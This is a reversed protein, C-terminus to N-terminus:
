QILGVTPLAFRIKHLIQPDFETGLSEKSFEFVKWQKWGEPLHADALGIIHQLLVADSAYAPIVSMLEELTVLMNRNTTM